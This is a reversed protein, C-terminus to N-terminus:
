NLTSLYAASTQELDNKLQMSETNTKFYNSSPHDLIKCKKKHNVASYLKNLVFHLETILLNLHMTKIKCKEIKQPKLNSKLM